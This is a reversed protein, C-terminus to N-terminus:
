SAALKATQSCFYKGGDSILRKISFFFLATEAKLFIGFDEQFCM